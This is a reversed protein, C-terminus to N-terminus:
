GQRLVAVADDRRWFEGVDIFSRSPWHYRQARFRTTAGDGHELVLGAVDGDPRLVRWRSLGIPVLVPRDPGLTTTM